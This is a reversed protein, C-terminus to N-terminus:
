ISSHSLSSYLMYGPNTCTDKVSAVCECEGAFLGELNGGARRDPSGVATLDGHVPMGVRHMCHIARHHLGRRDDSARCVIGDDGFLQSYQDSDKRRRGTGIARNIREEPWTQENPDRRQGGHGIGRCPREKQAILVAHKGFSRCFRCHGSTSIHGVLCPLAGTHHKRELAISTQHFIKAIERNDSLSPRFLRQTRILHSPPKAM